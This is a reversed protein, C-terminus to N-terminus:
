WKESPLVAPTVTRRKLSEPKEMGIIWLTILLLAMDPSSCWIEWGRQAFAEHFQPNESTVVAEILGMNTSKTKWVDVGMRRPSPSERPGWSRRLRADADTTRKRWGRKQKTKKCVAKFVVQLSRDGWTSSGRNLLLEPSRDQAFSWSRGPLLVSCWWLLLSFCCKGWLRM